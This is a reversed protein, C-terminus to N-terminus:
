SPVKRPLVTLHQAVGASMSALLQALQGSDARVARDALRRQHAVERRRVLDLAAGAGTTQPASPGTPEGGVAEAHAAHLRELGALVPRLPPHRVRVAAVVALSAVVDEAAEQVLTRDAEPDPAPAPGAPEDGAGPLLEDVDCGALLPGGVGGATLAGLTVVTRRPVSPLDHM